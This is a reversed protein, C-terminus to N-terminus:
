EKYPFELKQGGYELNEPHFSMILLTEEGRICVKLKIYLDVDQDIINKTIGFIWVEEGIFHINRDDATYSYNTINLECVVKEMDKQQVGSEAMYTLTKNVKGRWPENNLIVRGEELILAKAKDLFNQVEQKNKQYIEVVM